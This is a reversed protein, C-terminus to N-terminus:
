VELAVWGEGGGAKGVGVDVGEGELCDVAVDGRAGAVAVSEHPHGPDERRSLLDIQIHSRSHRRM